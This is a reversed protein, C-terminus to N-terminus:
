YIIDSLVPLKVKHILLDKIALWSEESKWYEVTDALKKGEWHFLWKSIVATFRESIQRSCTVGM